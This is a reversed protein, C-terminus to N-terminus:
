KDGSAKAAISQYIRVNDLWVPCGWCSEFAIHGNRLASSTHVSVTKKITADHTDQITLTVRDGDDIVKFFYERSEPNIELGESALLSLSTASPKEHIELSHQEGWAAPWFNERIGRQLISYEWGRGNGRSNDARTMVAFSGGYENLFNTDFEATGIITLAGDAASFRERTLLYPRSTFTNIHERSNPKGLKIRGDILTVDDLTTWVSENIAPGDFNDSVILRAEVPAMSELQNAVMRMREPGNDATGGTKSDNQAIAKAVSDQFVKIRDVAVAGNAGEFVVYNQQGRFLSRCAVTKNVSPDDRLAVTFTVNIGDDRIVLRYPVNEQLQDFGRWQNNRLACLPDLKTAVEITASSSDPESKFSCRVGTRMTRRGVRIGTDRENASRTLVAFTSPSNPNIDIFRIDAVVTLPGNVPAFEQSTILYPFENSDGVDQLQLAGNKRQVNGFASWKSKRLVQDEFREDIIPRADDLDKSSLVPSSGDFVSPGAKLQVLTDSNWQVAEGKTLRMTRAPGGRVESVMDVKGQFVNVESLGFDDVAVGFETGLDIVKGNPTEITFGRGKEPVVARVGGRLLRGGAPGVVFEAPGLLRLEVGTTYTLRMEGRVLQLSHGAGVHSHLAVSENPSQWLIDDSLESVRAVPPSESESRRDESDSSVIPVDVRNWRSYLGAAVTAITAATALIAMTRRRGLRRHPIDDVHWACSDSVCSQPAALTCTQLSSHLSLYRLYYDRMQKDATLLADLEELEAADLSQDCIRELLNQLRADSAPACMENSDPDPLNDHSM